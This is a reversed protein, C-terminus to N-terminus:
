FEGKAGDIRSSIASRPILPAVQPLCGHHLIRDLAIGHLRTWFTAILIHTNEREALECYPYPLEWENSGERFEGTM